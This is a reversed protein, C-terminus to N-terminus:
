RLTNSGQTTSEAAASEGTELDIMNSNLYRKTVISIYIIAVFATITGVVLLIIPLPGGDFNGNAADAISSITTGLLVYVFAGPLMGFGGLMFHKVKIGTIGFLYNLLTFPAIPCLRLLFVLKM